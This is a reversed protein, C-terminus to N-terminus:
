IKMRYVRYRKYLQAKFREGLAPTRPNDTSTLSADIWRYGRARARRVMEDFLLVVIGSGGSFRIPRSAHPCRVLQGGTM